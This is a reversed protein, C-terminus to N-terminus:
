HQSLFISLISPIHKRIQLTFFFLVFLKNFDFRFVLRVSSALLPKDDGSSDFEERLEDRLLLLKYTNMTNNITPALTPTPTPSNSKCQM